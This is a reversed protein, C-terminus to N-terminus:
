GAVRAAEFIDNPVEGAATGTRASTTLRFLSATRKQSKSVDLETAPQLVNEIGVDDISCPM